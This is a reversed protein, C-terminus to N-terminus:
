CGCCMTKGNGTEWEREGREVFCGWMRMKDLCCRKGEDIGERRGREVEVRSNWGDRRWMELLLSWMRM